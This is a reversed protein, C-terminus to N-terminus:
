PEADEHRFERENCVRKTVTWARGFDSHCEAIRYLTETRGQRITLRALRATGSINVTRNQKTKSAM